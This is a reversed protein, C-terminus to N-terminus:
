QKDRERALKILDVMDGKKQAPILRMGHKDWAHAVLEEKSMAELDPASGAQQEFPIEGEWTAVQHLFETQMEPLLLNFYDRAGGLDLIRFGKSQLYQVHRETLEAQPGEPEATSTGPETSWGSGLADQEQKSHVVRTAGSLQHGSVSVHSMGVRYMMRPYDQHLYRETFGESMLASLEEKTNVERHGLTRHYVMRPFAKRIMTELESSDAVAM